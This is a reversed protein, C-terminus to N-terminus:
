RAVCNTRGYKDTICTINEVREDISWHGPIWQGWRNYHSTVWHYTPRLPAIHVVVNPHHRVPHADATSLFAILALLM